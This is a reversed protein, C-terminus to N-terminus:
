QNNVLKKNQSNMTTHSKDETDHPMTEAGQNSSQFKFTSFWAYYMIYASYAQCCAPIPILVFIGMGWIDTPIFVWEHSINAFLYFPPVFMSTFFLKKFNLCINAFGTKYLVNIQMCNAWINHHKISTILLYFWIIIIIPLMSWLVYKM